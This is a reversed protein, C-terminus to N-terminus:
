CSLFLIHWAHISVERCMPPLTPQLSGARHFLVAPSTKSVSLDMAYESSYSPTCLMEMGSVYCGGNWYKISIMTPIVTQRLIETSRWPVWWTHVPKVYFLPNYLYIYFLNPNVIYFFHSRFSMLPSFQHSTPPSDLFDLLILLESVYWHQVIEIILGWLDWLYGMGFFIMVKSKSPFIM